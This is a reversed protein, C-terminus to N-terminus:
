IKVTRDTTNATGISATALRKGDPSFAVCCCGAQPTLLPESHFLRRLYDWEWDRYEASCTELLRDAERLRASLWCQHAARINAYYLNREATKKAQDALKRQATEQKTSIEAKRREEGATALARSTKVNAWLSVVAVALLLAAATASLAAVVPNRRCWRAFREVPRVRRATIPEGEEWRRLDDALERCGAYRNETRKAMAKLCITELDKPITPNASRPSPPEKGIVDAIVTAPAGAFPRQGCLMEYLVVGLSYQDSAPGVADHEGRAQEPAMYAPTGLVTGEHTLEDDSELFRALGFDALLPNDKADLLVNSPKVDRHVIGLGHAYDLAGALERVLRAAQQFDPRHRCLSEALTRGDIFASAIFFQGGASGADYVPVINPHRLQAAAKAERLVRTKDRESQLRSPHPVKLAVERDLLTDHARYVTGFGGAGLLAQITFRGISTPAAQAAEGLPWPETTGPAPADPTREDDGGVSTPKLSESFPPLPLRGKEEPSEARQWVFSSGCSQCRGKSGLDEESVQYSKGCQPCSCVIAM